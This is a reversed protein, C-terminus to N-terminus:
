DTIIIPEEKDTPDLVIHNYGLLDTIYDVTGSFDEIICYCNDPLENLFDPNYKIAEDYDFVGMCGSDIGFEGINNVISLLEQEEEEDGRDRASTLSDVYEDLDVDRDIENVQPSGDGWGSPIWLFDSFDPIKIENYEWDFDSGWDEDKAIYCPDTIILNKNEVKM